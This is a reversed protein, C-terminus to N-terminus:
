ADHDLPKSLSAPRIATQGFRERIRDIAKSLQIQQEQPDKLLSLQRNAEGATFNSVSLGLLRVKDERNSIGSMLKEGEGYLIGAQDTSIQFTKRRTLTDFEATRYKLTLTKTRLGKARLRTALGESLALLTQGILESDRTDKRFTREASMSKSIKKPIVRQEDYGQALYWVRRGIKGLHEALYKKDQKAVDGIVTCGIQNLRKTTSAGVGWLRGVSLDHLFHREKGPVVVVFGNPKKLDSAIKAVFKNTAVGVSARLKERKLIEEQIRGGIVEPAGFLRQSGTVDLFAEDLSLPEVQDTFQYFIKFIRESVEVYRDMRVPLFVGNPCAQYARSIPMASHIGFVRAEYSAAAVVGRGRGGQPDAGVIVPRNRFRDNDRQEVSAYFADMDVHIIM